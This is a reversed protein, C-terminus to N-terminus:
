YYLSFSVLYFVAVDKQLYLTSTWDEVFLKIGCWSCFGGDMFFFMQKSICIQVLNLFVKLVKKKFSKNLCWTKFHRCM